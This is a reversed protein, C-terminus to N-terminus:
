TIQIITLPFGILTVPARDNKLSLIWTEESKGKNVYSRSNQCIFTLFILNHLPTVISQCLDVDNERGQISKYEM